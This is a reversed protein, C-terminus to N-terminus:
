GMGLIAKAERPTAVERGLSRAIAIVQAVLEANSPQSQETFPHDGLGISVHGGRRVIEPVLPLMSTGYCQVTWQMRQDICLNLYGEIGAISAPHGSLANEALAISAYGPADLWGASLFAQALRGYPVNWLVLYPKIGLAKMEGAMFRLDATRNEYISGAEYIDGGILFERTAPNYIDINSSGMDLPAFDPTLGQEALKRIHALRQEVPTDKFQGLTTHILVDSNRRLGGVAKAFDAPDNSERGSEQRCHFHVVAAGAEACATGDAVIEAPRYPINPNGAKPAGENMRVEIILKEM